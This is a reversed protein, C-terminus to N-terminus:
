IFNLERINSSMGGTFGLIAFVEEVVRFRDLGSVVIMGRKFFGLFFTEVYKGLDKLGATEVEGGPNEVGM